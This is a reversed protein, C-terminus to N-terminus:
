LLDEIPDLQGRIVLYRAYLLARVLLIREGSPGDGVRPYRNRPDFVPRSGTFKQEGGLGDTMESLIILTGLVKGVLGPSQDPDVFVNDV